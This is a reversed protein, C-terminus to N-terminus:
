RDQHTEHEINGVQGITAKCDLRVLRVEGSRFDSRLWATKRLWLSLPQAPQVSLSHARAPIFSSITSSSYRGPYQCHSSHQGAQYGCGAGCYIVTARRNRRRSCPHLEEQRRRVSCSRHLRTRNPDYEVGIVTAPETLRMSEQFRHNQVEAQQRRGSSPRHNQRLQQTRRAKEKTAILSKEPTFKTIEMSVVSVSM